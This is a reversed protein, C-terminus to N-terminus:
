YQRLIKEKIKTEYKFTIYEKYDLILNNFKEKNYKKNKLSPSRILSVILFKTIVIIIIIIFIFIM